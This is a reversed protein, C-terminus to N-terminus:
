GCRRDRRGPDVCFCVKFSSQFLDIALKCCLIFRRLGGIGFGGTGTGTRHPGVLRGGTAISWLLSLFHCVGRLLGRSHAHTRTAAPLASGHAMPTDAQTSHTSLASYSGPAADQLEEKKEDKKGTTKRPLEELAHISVRLQLLTVHTVLSLHCILIYYYCLVAYPMQAAESSLLFFLANMRGSSERNRNKCNYVHSFHFNTLM